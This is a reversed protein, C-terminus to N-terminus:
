NKLARNTFNQWTVVLPSAVFISSYTGVIIGVLLVFVFASLTTGGLLLLSAMTIILTFSTNISRAITQTVSSNVTESFDQGINNNINERLRDFVVITDHVSFGM